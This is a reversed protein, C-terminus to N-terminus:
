NTSTSDCSLMSNRNRVSASSCSTCGIFFATLCRLFWRRTPRNWFLMDIDIALCGLDRGDQLDVQVGGPRREPPRHLARHAAQTGGQVRGAHRAVAHEDAERLVVRGLEAVFRARPHLRVRIPESHNVPVGADGELCAGFPQRAGASHAGRGSLSRGAPAPVRRVGPQPAAGGGRPPHPRDDPGARGAPPRRWM